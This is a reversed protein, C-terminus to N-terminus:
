RRPRSLAASSFQPQDFPKLAAIEGTFAMSAQSPKGPCTHGIHPLWRNRGEVEGVHNSTPTHAPAPYVLPGGSRNPLGLISGKGIERWTLSTPCVEHHPRRTSALRDRESQHRQLEPTVSSEPRQTRNRPEIRAAASAM